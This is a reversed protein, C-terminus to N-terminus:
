FKSFGNKWEKNNVSEKLLGFLHNFYISMSDTNLSILMDMWGDGAIYKSVEMSQTETKSSLFTFLATETKASLTSRFAIETESLMLQLKTAETSALEDLLVEVIQGADVKSDPPLTSFEIVEVASKKIKPM